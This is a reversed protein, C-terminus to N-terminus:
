VNKSSVSNSWTVVKLKLWNTEHQSSHDKLALRVDMSVLSHPNIPGLQISIHEVISFQGKAKQTQQWFSM